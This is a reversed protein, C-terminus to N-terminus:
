NDEEKDRSRDGAFYNPRTDPKKSNGLPDSTTVNIERGIYGECAVVQRVTEHILYVRVKTPKGMISLTMDKIPHSCDTQICDNCLPFIIGYPGIQSKDAPITQIPWEM